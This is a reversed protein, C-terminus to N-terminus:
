VRFVFDRAKIVYERLEIPSRLWGWMGMILLILSVLSWWVVENTNVKYSIVFGSVLMLIPVVLHSGLKHTVQAFKSLLFFDVMVRVSFALAVGVLGFNTIGLYLLAFYPLLEALHCKAVIDPRGRAQLQALPIRALCNFWVGVLLIQAVLTSQVAFEASIWWGLFPQASLICVFILPTVVVVLTHMAIDALEQERQQGDATFRPFFAGSLASPIVTIRDALQFPITYFTVAKAGSIAGIVFRDLVVMMPSVFSTVTVWGGFRLLQRADRHVFSVPFAGFIARRCLDFLAVLSLFRAFVAAPLVVALSSGWYMAALLPLLQFLFTGAVSVVNLQLFRERGQLAGSLVGSLTAMPVALVLWFVAAKLEIEIAPGVKFWEAFAYKAVPWILVGGLVGLGGNLILATWFVQARDVAASDRLAAIRQATAVGLGLDFLGFYGLLLWAIALVGYREEGILGLYIPVTLLSVFIPVISGILNITTNRGISM